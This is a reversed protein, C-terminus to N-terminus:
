TGWTSMANLNNNEDHTNREEQSITVKRRENKVHFYLQKGLKEGGNDVKM